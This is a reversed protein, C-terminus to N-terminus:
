GNTPEKRLCIQVGEGTTILAHLRTYGEYWEQMEGFEFLITTTNEASGFEETAAAISTGDDLTIWLSGDAAGCSAVSHRVGTATLTIKWDSM